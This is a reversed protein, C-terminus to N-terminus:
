MSTGQIAARCASLAAAICEQETKDAPRALRRSWLHQPPADKVRSDYLGIWVDDATSQVLVRWRGTTERAALERFEEM